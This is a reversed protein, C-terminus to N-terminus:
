GLHQDFYYHSNYNDPASSGTSSGSENKVEEELLVIKM